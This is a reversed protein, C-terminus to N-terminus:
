QYRFMAVLSRLKLGLEKAKDSTIEETKMLTDVSGNTGAVIAALRSRISDIRVLLKNIEDSGNTPINVTLDGYDGIETMVREVLRLRINMQVVGYIMLLLGLILGAASVVLSKQSTKKAESITSVM